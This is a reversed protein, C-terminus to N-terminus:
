RGPETIADHPRDSQGPGPGPEAYFGALVEAAAGVAVVDAGLEDVVLEIRQWHPVPLSEALLAAVTDRYLGPAAQVTRGALVLRELDLIQVLDALGIGLLRAAEAPDGAALAANHLVEVCGRRGCGCRPGAHDLTTHGFEGANTRPGRYLRSDIVLGAGIGTGVLVVATAPLPGGAPWAHAVAAANTDKDVVVPIGTADALRDRLPVAHWGPLNTPATLVGTRHDLPGLGGVGLGLLRDRDETLETVGTAIAAVADDPTFGTALPIVRRERVAGLLDTRVLRIQDRDLQAGIAHRADARVRLLSGPKGVGSPPQRQEDLVGAATLERVIKSVAQQTLGSRAALEGRSCGGARRIRDLLLTRNHRRLGGLNVGATPGSSSVARDHRM